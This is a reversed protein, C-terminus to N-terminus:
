RMMQWNPTSRLTCFPIILLLPQCDVYLVPGELTIVSLNDVYLVPGELTIVSLYDVYLVPGELTIVSLSDVYLVPGEIIILCFCNKKRNARFLVLLTLRTRTFVSSFLLDTEFDKKKETSVACPVTDALLKHGCCCPDGM